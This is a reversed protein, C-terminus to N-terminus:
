CSQESEGSNISSIVSDMPRKNEKSIVYDEMPSLCITNKSVSRLQELFFFVNNGRIHIISKLFLGKAIFM